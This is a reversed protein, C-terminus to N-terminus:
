KAIKILLDAVTHMISPIQTMLGIVAFVYIAVKGVGKFFTEM